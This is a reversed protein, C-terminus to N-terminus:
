FLKDYYNEKEGYRTKERDITTSPDTKQNQVFLKGPM